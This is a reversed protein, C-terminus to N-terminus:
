YYQPAAQQSELWGVFVRAYLSAVAVIDHSIDILKRPMREPWCSFAAPQTLSATVDDSMYKGVVSKVAARQQFRECPAPRYFCIIAETEMDFSM